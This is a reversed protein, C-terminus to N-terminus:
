PPCATKAKLCLERRWRRQAANESLGRVELHYELQNLRLELRDGVKVTRATEPARWELRM